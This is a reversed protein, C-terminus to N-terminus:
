NGTFHPEEGTGPQRPGSALRGPCCWLRRIRVKIDTGAEFDLLYLNGDYTAVDKPKQLNAADGLPQAQWASNDANYVYSVLKDDVAVLSGVRMTMAILNGAKEGGATDGSSLVPACTQAAIKCRYIRGAAKDFLYADDSQIVMDSLAFTGTVATTATINGQTAIKGLDFLLKPEKLRTVGQAKDLASQEKTVLRKAEASQPDALLAKQAKELALTLHTQRETDTIGPQNALLDEQKADQLYNVTAQQNAKSGGSLVSFVLVVLVLIIAGAIITRRPVVMRKSGYAGASRASAVKEPLLSRLTSAGWRASGGLVAKGREIQAQTLHIRPAKIQPRSIQPLSLKPRFTRARGIQIPDAHANM